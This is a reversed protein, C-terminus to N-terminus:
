ASIVRDGGGARHRSALCADVAALLEAQRIPKALTQTAGLRAALSLFLEGGRSGGGSMAIIPLDPAAARMEGITEVGERNPMIIDTIVLDPTNVRFLEMAKAGDEAEAVEHGARQLIARLTTRLMQEDDVVLIFAM